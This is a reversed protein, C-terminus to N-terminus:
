KLYQHSAFVPVGRFTMVAPFDHDAVTPGHVAIILPYTTKM